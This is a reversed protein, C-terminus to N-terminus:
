PRQPRVVAAGDRLRDGGETVVLEGAALGATVAIREGDPAGLTVPRVRATEAADVVYVFSTMSGDPSGHHVAAAPIVLQDHLVDQLLEINVFQNPFLTGDANPFEARVKVTGTAVDIANDVTVVVGDALKASNTRDYAEVALTAASQLRREVATVADAPISFLATIPQIQNIIVIGNTDMPTVYNGQDVQRLGVRGSVPSVIRTFQLNVLATNLAGEDAEIIGRYQDVQARQTDLQQASISDQKVLAEYRSLDVIANDLLAQDRRLNGRAAQVAAEYPRPDIEAVPDGKRVLQGERAVFRQLIGSIQTKIVVTALPTITGLAPIRVTIDGSAAAALAVAVPADRGVLGRAVPPAPAQQAQQLHRLFFLLGAFM